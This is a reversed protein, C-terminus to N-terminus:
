ACARVDGEGSGVSINIRRLEAVSGGPRARFDWRAYPMQYGSFRLVYFHDGSGRIDTQGSMNDVVCEAFQQPSKTSEITQEVNSNLLGAATTACGSLAVASLIALAARM